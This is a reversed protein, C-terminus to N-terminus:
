RARPPPTLPTAGWYGLAPFGIHWMLRDVARLPALLWPQKPRFVDVRRATSGAADLIANACRRSVENTGEASAFDMYTRLWDSALFLNPIETAPGPRASWAGVTTVFLKEQNDDRDPEGRRSEIDPDLFWRVIDAEAIGDGLKQLSANLQALTEAYIEDRTCEKAPKGTVIGPTDWDSIIVSFAEKCTGDGTRSWDFGNWFQAQGVATLEWPTDDFGIHGRVVPLERRLFFQIGNMWGVEVEDIRALSPSARRIDPSFFRRAVDVPLAAVYHDAVERRTEGDVEVVAGTIRRGDFELERLSAPMILEGGLSRLHAVWPLVWTEQEPGDLVRDITQGPTFGSEMMQIMADGLTRTSAVEPEVAILAAASLNAVLHKYAESMDSAEVYDWWTVEDLENLRRKRCTGAFALARVLFFALEEIPIGRQMVWVARLSEVLWQWTFQFRAPIKATPEMSRALMEFDGWVLHDAVTKGDSGVPIRAMTAPLNRYFCPFFHFGHHGPLDSRGDTGSGPVPIGRVKGGWHEKELVTVRFGRELLEHAVSLGGVGGGFVLVRPRVSRLSM